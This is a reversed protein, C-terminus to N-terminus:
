KSIRDAISSAVFSDPKIECEFGQSKIWGVIAPILEKTKGDPSKGADVHITFTTKTYLEEYVKESELIELLK